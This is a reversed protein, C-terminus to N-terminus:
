IAQPEPQLEATVDFPIIYTHPCPSPPHNPIGGGLSRTVNPSPSGGIMGSPVIEGEVDDEDDEEEEEDAEEEEDEEDDNFTDVLARSERISFSLLGISLCCCCASCDKRLCLQLKSELCLTKAGTGIM